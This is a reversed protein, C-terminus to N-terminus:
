GTLDFLTPQMLKKHGNKMGTLVGTKMQRHTRIRHCNACVLDCKAFEAHLTDASVDRNKRSIAFSKDAPERHDFDFCFYNERTVLLDCDLCKGRRLKEEITQIRGSIRTVAKGKAPKRRSKIYENHAKKCMECKEKRNLHRQYAAQTGCPLPPKPRRGSGKGGM